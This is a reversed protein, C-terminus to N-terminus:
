CQEVFYGFGDPALVDGLLLAIHDCRITDVATRAASDGYTAGCTRHHPSPAWVPVVHLTRRADRVRDLLKPENGMSQLPGNLMNRNLMDRNLMNWNLM